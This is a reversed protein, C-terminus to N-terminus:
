TLGRGHAKLRHFDGYRSDCIIEYEIWEAGIHGGSLVPTDVLFSLVRHRHRPATSSTTPQYSLVVLPLCLLPPVMDM